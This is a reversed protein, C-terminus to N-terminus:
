WLTITPKIHPVVADSKARAEFFVGPGFSEFAFQVARMKAREADVTLVHKQRSNTRKFM